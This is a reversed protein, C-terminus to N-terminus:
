KGGLSEAETSKTTLAAHAARVQEITLAHKHRLQDEIERLLTVKEAEALQEARFSQVHAINAATDPWIRERYYISSSRTQEVGEMRYPDGYLINPDAGRWFVRIGRGGGVSIEVRRKTLRVVQHEVPLINRHRPEVYVRDGVQLRETWGQEAKFGM